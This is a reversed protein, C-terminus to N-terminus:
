ASEFKTILNDLARKQLSPEVLDILLLQDHGVVDGNHLVQALRNPNGHTPIKDQKSPMRSLHRVTTKDPSYVFILSVVGSSRAM